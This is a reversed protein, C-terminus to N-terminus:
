VLEDLDWGKMTSKTSICTQTHIHTGYYWLDPSARWHGAFTSSAPSRRAITTSHHFQLLLPFRLGLFLVRVEVFRFFCWYSSRSRFLSRHVFVSSRCRFLLPLSWLKNLQQSIGCAHLFSPNQNQIELKRRATNYLHQSQKPTFM